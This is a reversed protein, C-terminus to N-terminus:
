AGGGIAKEIEEIKEKNAVPDMYLKSIDDIKQIADANKTKLDKLTNTLDEQGAVANVEIKMLIDSTLKTFDAGEFSVKEGEIKSIKKTGIEEKTELDNIKGENPKKKDDDTLADWNAQNFKERKYIVTDGVKYDGSVEVGKTKLYAEVEEDTVETAYKELRPVLTKNVWNVTAEKKKKDDTAAKLIKKFDPLHTADDLGLTKKKPDLKAPEGVKLDPGGAFKYDKIARDRIREMYYQIINLPGTNNGFAKIIQDYFSQMGQKGLAGTEPDLISDILTLCDQDNATPKKNFEDMVSKLVYTDDSPNFPNKEIWQDLQQLSPNDGLKKLEQTAKAWMNKFFNIVTGLLEENLPQLRKTKFSEFTNVYKM